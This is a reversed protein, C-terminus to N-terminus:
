GHPRNADSAGPAAAAREAFLQFWLEFQAIRVLPGALDGNGARTQELAKLIPERRYIGRETAQPGGVLDRLREYAAPGSIWQQLPTPFGFKEPRVRIREPIRERMAERLIFKNWPGRLKQDAPLSFLYSVLRYDLFPLRAEISHAMSNRDEVRLYLPLPRREVADTLAERLDAPAPERRSSLRGTLEPTFWPHTALRRRRERAVLGQYAGSARLRLSVSHRIISVLARTRSSGHVTSHLDIEKLMRGFGNSAMLTHWYDKFFNPYGGITEDAGQGNLIVPIHHEGALRMLEFGILAATSHVPEDQAALIRVFRDWLSEGEFRLSVLTAGTQAITAELFRSEDFEVPNFSFAYLPQSRVAPERQRAMACIIATSDLGGSLCVGVPVDSRLRLRVADEFLDAFRLAADAPAAGDEAQLSWYQRVSMRGDPELLFCSGAPVQTIGAYFTGAGDDLNGDLLFTAAQDWDLAPRYLGSPAFAKLESAFLVAERCRHVYLPKVGFRDRAGFVRNSQRDHILFAWMGNLRSLCAEGWEAYAALLVETDGTSSFRHGKARLEERLEVFNYIEGNFVIVFRGDHSTMPQHGEPTLDLIALRRFGFGVNGAEYFGEDDPGRHRISDAMAELQRRHPRYGELGVIAAIGCM